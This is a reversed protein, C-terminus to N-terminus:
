VGPAADTPTADTQTLTITIDSFNVTKNQSVNTASSFPFDFTAKVEIDDGNNAETIPGVTEGDITKTVVATLEEGFNNTAIGGNVSVDAQLDDGEATIDYSAAFTVVDGPVIEVAEIDAVSTGNLKWTGADLETLKLQGSTVIGGPTADEATWQALTGVGGLLLAAATAAAFAGKTSKKM